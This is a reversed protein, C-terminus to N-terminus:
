KSKLVRPFWQLHNTKVMYYLLAEDFHLPSDIVSKLDISHDKFYASTVNNDNTFYDYLTEIWNPDLKKDIPETLGFDTLTIDIIINNHNKKVLVNKPLLDYHIYGASHLRDILGEFKTIIESSMNKIDDRKLEDDWKETVIIAYHKRNKNTHCYWHNYFIPAIGLEGFKKSLQVEQEISEMDKVEQIKVVYKCDREFCASLVDGYTGSGLLRKIEYGHMCQKSIYRKSDRDGTLDYSIDEPHILSVEGTKTNFYDDPFKLWNKTMMVIEKPKEFQAQNTKINHYYYDTPDSRSQVYIWDGHEWAKRTLSTPIEPTKLAEPLEPRHELEDLSAINLDKMMDALSDIEPSDPYEGSEGSEMRAKKKLNKLIFYNSNEDSKIMMAVGLVKPLINLTILVAQLSYPDYNKYLDGCNHTKVLNYFLLHLDVVDIYIENHEEVNEKINKLNCNTTIVVSFHDTTYEKINEESESCVLLNSM